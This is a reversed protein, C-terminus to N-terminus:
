YIELDLFDRISEELNKMDDYMTQEKNKEETYPVRNLIDGIERLLERLRLQKEIEDIDIKEM